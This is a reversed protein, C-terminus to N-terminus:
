PRCTTTTEEPSGPTKAMADATNSTWDASSAGAMQCAMSTCTTGPTVAARAQPSAPAQEGHQGGAPRPIKGFLDNVMTVIKPEDVKGAVMLVANDPQYYKRYFAQLSEIPVLEVDSRNGIVPRGAMLAGAHRPFCVRPLDARHFACPKMRHCDCVIVHHIEAVLAHERREGVHLADADLM